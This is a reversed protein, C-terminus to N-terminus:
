FGKFSKNLEDDNGSYGINIYQMATAPSRIGMLKQVQFLSGTLRAIMTGFTHRGLHSVFKKGTIGSLGCIIKLNRNYTPDAIKKFLPTDDNKADLRPEIINKARGNFLESLNQKIPADVKQMKFIDMILKEKEERFNNKSVRKVDSIRLGTYCCFLFRELDELYTKDITGRLEELIDLEEKTLYERKTRETILKFKQYPNLEIIDEKIAENLAARLQSHLKHIYNRSFKKESLFVDFSKLFSYDIDTFYLNTKYEKLINYFTLKGKKTGPKISPNNLGYRKYFQYFCNSNIIEKGALGDVISKKTITEGRQDLLRCISNVKSIIKQLEEADKYHVPQHKKINWSETFVGTNIYQRIEDKRYVYLQIPKAIRKSNNRNFVPSVSVPEKM